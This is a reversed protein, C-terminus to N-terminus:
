DEREVFFIEFCRSQRKFFIQMVEGFFFEGSYITQKKFFIVCALVKTNNVGM